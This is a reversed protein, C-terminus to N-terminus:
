VCAIKSTFSKILGKFRFLSESTIAKFLISVIAIAILFLFILSEIMHPIFQAESKVITVGEIYVQKLNDSLDFEEYIKDVSVLLMTKSSNNFVVSYPKTVTYTVTTRSNIDLLLQLSVLTYLYYRITFNFFETFNGRNELEVIILLIEENQAAHFSFTVNTISIDHLKLERKVYPKLTPDGIITLGYSILPDLNVGQDQFWKQFAVGISNGESLVAFFKRFSVSFMIDTCGIALLGYTDAFVATGALYDKETYRAASCTFFLYFLIRPDINQYEWSFVTGGCLKGNVEFNHYDYSGHSMLYLWQFGSADKLRTKFDEANTIEPETILTVDTSVQSVSTKADDAWNVGDDDIYILTRWWPLIRFGNRYLHNKHFYNILLRTEESGLRPPKLRGVWIEPIIDGGHEDYVGNGDLDKWSGDLDAYYMDTPFRSDNVEYWVEPINGVFLAGTLGQSMMERLYSRIGMPTRDVLKNTEIINVSYGESEADMKYLNLSSELAPYNNSDVMVIVLPKHQGPEGARVTLTDLEISILTFELILFFLLLRIVIAFKQFM